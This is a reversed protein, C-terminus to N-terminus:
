PPPATAPGGTPHHLYGGRLLEHHRRHHHYALGVFTTALGIAAMAASFWLPFMLATDLKSLRIHPDPKSNDQAYAEYDGYRSFGEYRMGIGMATLGFAILAGATIIAGCLARM